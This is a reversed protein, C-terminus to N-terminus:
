SFFKISRLPILTKKVEDKIFNPEWTHDDYIEAHFGDAKRKILAQATGGRGHNSDVTASNRIYCFGNEDVTILWPVTWFSDGIPLCSITPTIRSEPIKAHTEGSLDPVSDIPDKKLLGFM